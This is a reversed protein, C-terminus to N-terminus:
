KSSEDSQDERKKIIGDRIAREIGQSILRAAAEGDSGGYLGTKALDRLYDAIRQNGGYKLQKYRLPNTRYPM